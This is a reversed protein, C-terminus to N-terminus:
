LVAHSAVGQMYNWLSNSNCSQFRANPNLSGCLSTICSSSALHMHNSAQLIIQHWEGHLSDIKATNDTSNCDLYSYELKLALMRLIWSTCSSATFTSIPLSTHLSQFPSSTQILNICDVRNVVTELRTGMCTRFSPMLKITYNSAPLRLSEENRNIYSIESVLWLSVLQSGDSVM